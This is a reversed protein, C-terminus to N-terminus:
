FFDFHMLPYYISDFFVDIRGLIITIHFVITKDDLDRSFRNKKKYLTVGDGELRKHFTQRLINIRM